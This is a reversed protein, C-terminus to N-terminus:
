NESAPAPAATAAPAAPTASAGANDPLTPSASAAPSAAPVAPTAASAPNAPAAAAPSAAPAASPEPAAEPPAAPAEKKLYPPVLLSPAAEAKEGSPSPGKKALEQVALEMAREIPIRVTGKEKNVWEYKTLKAHAAEKVEALTKLRAEARQAEYADGKPESRFLLVALGVLAFGLIGWIFVLGIRATRPQAM